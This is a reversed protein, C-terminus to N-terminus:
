EKGAVAAVFSAVQDALQGQLIGAPMVGQGLCAQSSNSGSANPLCGNAITHLVLSKSPKLQDLNPGVKGAVNAAALTHCFGCSFAFQERGKKEGPTLKVGGVQRNAHASNGHLFLAPIAVGFGVYLVVLLLATARGGRRTPTLAAAREGRRGFGAVFFVVLALLVWFAIFLAVGLM